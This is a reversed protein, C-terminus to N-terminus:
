AISFLQEAGEKERCYILTYQQAFDATGLTAALTAHARSETHGAAGASDTEGFGIVDDRFVGALQKFKSQAFCCDLELGVILWFVPAALYQWAVGEAYLECSENKKNRVEVIGTEFHVVQAPCSLRSVIKKSRRVSRLSHFTCLVAFLLRNAVV